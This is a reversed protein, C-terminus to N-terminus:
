DTQDLFRASILPLFALLFLGRHRNEENKKFRYCTAGYMTQNRSELQEDLLKKCQAYFNRSFRNPEFVLGGAENNKKLSKRFWGCWASILTLRV